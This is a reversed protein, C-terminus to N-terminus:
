CTTGIELQDYRIWNSVIYVLDWDRRSVATVLDRYHRRLQALDQACQDSLQPRVAAGDAVSRAATTGYQARTTDLSADATFGPMTM